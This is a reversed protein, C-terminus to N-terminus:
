VRWALPKEPVQLSERVKRNWGIAARCAKCGSLLHTLIERRRAPSLTSQSSTSLEAPNLHESLHPSEKRRQVRTSHAVLDIIACVRRSETVRLSPRPASRGEPSPSTLGAMLTS